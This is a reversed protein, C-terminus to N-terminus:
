LYNQYSLGNKSSDKLLASFINAASSFNELKGYCKGIEHKVSPIEEKGLYSLSRQFADVAEKWLTLTAYGKGIQRFAKGKLEEPANQKTIKQFSEIGQFYLSQKYFCNGLGLYALPLAESLPFYKVFEKFVVESQHYRGVQKYLNALKFYIKDEDQFYPHNLMQEYVDIEKSYEKQTLYVEAIKKQVRNLLSSTVQNEEIIIRFINLSKDYEEKEYFIDGTIFLAEERYKSQPFKSVLLSLM